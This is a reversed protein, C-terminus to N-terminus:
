RSEFTRRRRTLGAVMAPLYLAVGLVLATALSYVLGGMERRLFASTRRTIIAGDPTIAEFGAPSLAVAARDVNARDTGDPDQWLVAVRDFGRAWMKAALGSRVMPWADFTSHADYTIWDESAVGSQLRASDTNPTAIVTVHCGPYKKNLVDLAVQVHRGSRILVIRNHPPM